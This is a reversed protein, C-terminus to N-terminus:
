CVHGDIIVHFLKNKKVMDFFGILLLNLIAEGMVKPALALISRFRTTQDDTPSAASVAFITDGDVMTHVPQVHQAYGDHTADALKNAQPKTLAANTAIM